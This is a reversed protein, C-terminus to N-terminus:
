VSGRSNRADVQKSANSGPLPRAPRVTGAGGDLLDTKDGAVPQGLRISMAVEGAGVQYSGLLAWSM